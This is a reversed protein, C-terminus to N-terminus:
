RRSFRKSTMLISPESALPRELEGIAALDDRGEGHEGVREGQVDLRFEDFAFFFFLKEMLHTAVFVLAM